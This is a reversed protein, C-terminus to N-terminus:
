ASRPVWSLATVRSVRRSSFDVAENYHDPDIEQGHRPDISGVLTLRAGEPRYYINNLFDGATLHSREIAPPRQFTAVQHHEPRIPLIPM